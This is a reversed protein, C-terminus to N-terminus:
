KATRTGQKPRNNIESAVARRVIDRGREGRHVLHMSQHAKVIRGTINRSDIAICNMPAHSHM